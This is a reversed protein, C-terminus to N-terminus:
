AYVWHQPCFPFQHEFIKSSARFILSDLPSGPRSIRFDSVINLPGPSGNTDLAAIAVLSVQKTSLHNKNAISYFM